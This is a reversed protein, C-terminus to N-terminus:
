RGAERAEIGSQVTLLAELEGVTVAAVYVVLGAHMEDWTLARRRRASVDTATAAFTWGPFREQLVALDVAEGQRGADAM